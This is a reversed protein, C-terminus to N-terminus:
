KCKRWAYALLGFLGAALLAITSPEPTPVALIVSPMYEFTTSPVPSDYSALAGVPFWGTNGVYEGATAAAAYSTENGQWFYLDFQAM